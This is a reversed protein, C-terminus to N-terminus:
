IMRWDDPPVGVTACRRRTAATKVWLSSRSNGSGSAIASGSLCSMSVKACVSVRTLSLSKRFRRGEKDEVFAELRVFGPESLSTRYVFSMDGLPLCGVEMVGDDGTRKWDLFWEDGLLGGEVDQITLTFTIEENPRYGIAVRDTVGKIWATDLPHAAACAALELWAFLIFLSKEAQVNM